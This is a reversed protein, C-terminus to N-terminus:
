FIMLPTILLNPSLEGACCVEIPRNKTSKIVAIVNDYKNYM